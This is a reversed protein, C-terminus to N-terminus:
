DKMSLGSGLVRDGDLRAQVVAPDREGPLPSTQLKGTVWAIPVLLFQMWEKFTWLNPTQEAAAMYGIVVAAFGLYLLWADRTLTM